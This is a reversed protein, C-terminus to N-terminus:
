TSIVEGAASLFYEEDWILVFDGHQKWDAIDGFLEQQRNESYDVINELFERYHKPLDEISIDREPISFRKVQIQKPRAGLDELVSSFKASIDEGAAITLSGLIDGTPSFSISLLHPYQRGVLVQTQDRKVGTRFYVSDNIIFM